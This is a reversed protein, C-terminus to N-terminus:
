PGPCPAEKGLEAPAGHAPADPGAPDSRAPRPETAGDRRGIM